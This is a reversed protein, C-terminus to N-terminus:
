HRGRGAGGGRTGGGGGRASGFSSSSRSSSGFSSRSSSSSGFSSRSSSSSSGFSSRGTSGSFPSSSRTAGGVTGRSASGFGTGVGTWGTSRTPPPPPARRSMEGAIRGAMYMASPSPSFPAATPAVRVRRRRRRSLAVLVIVLIVVVVLLGFMGSGSERTERPGTYTGVTDTQNQAAYENYAAIGQQVTVNANYADAIREFSAEFFKKVGAEYRGAAFDKELYQDYYSKITGASFKSDLGSGPLAYYNEDDIALLLLFGNQRKSDGIGWQNFLDYAYDDIFEGNTDNVTVVVIQAGCADYLLQNAYFIEGELAESLVDAKDLFYFEKGPSVVKACAPAALCVALLLTLLTVRLGKSLKM